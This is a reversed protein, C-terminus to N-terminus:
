VLNNFIDLVGKVNDVLHHLIPTIGGPLFTRPDTELGDVPSVKLPEGEQTKPNGSHRRHGTM